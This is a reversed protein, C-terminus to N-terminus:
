STLKRLAKKSSVKTLSNLKLIKDTSIKNSLAFLNVYDLAVFSHITFRTRGMKEKGDRLYRRNSSNWSPQDLCIVDYSVDECCGLSAGKSNISTLWTMQKILDPWISHFSRLKKFFFNIFQNLGGGGTNIQGSNTLYFTPSTEDWNGPPGKDHLPTSSLHCPEPLQKSNKQQFKKRAKSKKWCKLTNVTSIFKEFSNRRCLSHGIYVKLGTKRKLFKKYRVILNVPRAWFTTRM